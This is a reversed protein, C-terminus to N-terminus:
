ILLGLLREFLKRVNEGTKASTEVYVARLEKAVKEGEARSVARNPLDIKNGVLVLPINSPTYTRLDNLWSKVNKLTSMTTVDYVIAAINARNYYRDRVGSFIEQGAIDWIILTVIKKEVSVEKAVVNAGLTPIYDTKFTSAAYRTILSTKGVGQDGIFVIKFVRERPKM